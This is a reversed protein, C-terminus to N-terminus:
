CTLLAKVPGHYDSDLVGAGIDIEQMSLGSRPAIHGYFGLPISLAIQTDILKRSHAPISIAEPSILDFRASGPTAGIPMKAQSM